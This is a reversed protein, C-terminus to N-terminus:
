CCCLHVRTVGTSSQYTSFQIGAFQKISSLNEEIDEEDAPAPLSLLLGGQSPKSDLLAATENWIEEISIHPVNAVGSETGQLCIAVGLTLSDVKDLVFFM